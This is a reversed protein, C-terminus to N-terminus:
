TTTKGQEKAQIRVAIVGLIKDGIRAGRRFKLSINGIAEKAVAYSTWCANLNLIDLDCSKIEKKRNGEGLRRYSLLYTKM